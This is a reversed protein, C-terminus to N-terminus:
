NGARRAARRYTDPTENFFQYSTSFGATHAQSQQLVPNATSGSPTDAPPGQNHPHAIHGADSGLQIQDAYAQDSQSFRTTTHQIYAPDHQLLAATVPNKRATLFPALIDHFSSTNYYNLLGPAYVNSNTSGAQATFSSSLINPTDSFIGLGGLTGDSLWGLQDIDNESVGSPQSTNRDGPLTGLDRLADPPLLDLYPDPPIDPASGPLLISYTDISHLSSDSPPPVDRQLSDLMSNNRGNVALPTALIDAQNFENDWEPAASSSSEPQFPLPIPPPPPMSHQYSPQGGPQPFSWALPILTYGLLRAERDLWRLRKLRTEEWLLPVSPDDTNFSGHSWVGVRSRNGSGNSGVWEGSRTQTGHENPNEGDELSGIGPSYVSMRAGAGGSHASGQSGGRRGSFVRFRDDEVPSHVWSPLPPTRLAVAVPYFVNTSGIRLPTQAETMASATDSRELIYQQSAHCTAGVDFGGPGPTAGIPTCAITAIPTPTVPVRLRPMTTWTQAPAVVTSLGYPVGSSSGYAVGGAGVPVGTSHRAGAVRHQVQSRAQTGQWERTGATGSVGTGSGSRGPASRRGATQGGVVEEYALGELIPVYATWAPLEASGNSLMTDSKVPARDIAARVHAHGSYGPRTTCCTPARDLELEDDNPAQAM